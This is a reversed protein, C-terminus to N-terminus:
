EKMASRRLLEQMVAAQEAPTLEEWPRELKDKLAQLRAYDRDEVGGTELLLEPM